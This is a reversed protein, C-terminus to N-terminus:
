FHPSRRAFAHKEAKKKRMLRKKKEKLPMKAWKEIALSVPSRHLAEEKTPSHLMQNVEQEETPLEYERVSDRDEWIQVGEERIGTDWESSGYLIGIRELADLARGLNGKMADGNNGLSVHIADIVDKPSKNGGKESLGYSIMDEFQSVFFDISKPDGMEYEPGLRADLLAEIVKEDAVFGGLALRTQERLSNIAKATQEEIDAKIRLTAEWAKKEDVEEGLASSLMIMGKNNSNKVALATTIEKMVRSEIDKRKDWIGELIKEISASHRGTEHLNLVRGQQDFMRTYTKGTNPDTYIDSKGVKRQGNLISSGQFLKFMDSILSAKAKPYKHQLGFIFKSFNNYSEQPRGSTFLGSWAEAAEKMALPTQVAMAKSDVFQKDMMNLQLKGTKLNIGRLEEGADYKELEFCRRDAEMNRRMAEDQKFFFEKRWQDEATSQQDLFMKTKVWGSGFSSLGSIGRGVAFGEDM